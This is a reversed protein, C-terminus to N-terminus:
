RPQRRQHQDMTTSAIVVLLAAFETRQIVPLTSRKNQRHTSTPRRDSPQDILNIPRMTRSFILRDFEESEAQLWREADPGSKAKSYTLPSGDSSLNLAGYAIARQRATHQRTIRPTPPAPNTPRRGIPLQFPVNDPLTPQNHCYSPSIANPMLTARSFTKLRSNQQHNPPHPLLPSNISM